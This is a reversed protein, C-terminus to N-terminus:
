DANEICYSGFGELMIVFVQCSLMKGVHLNFQVAVRKGRSSTESLLKLFALPWNQEGASEALISGIVLSWFLVHSGIKRMAPAKTTQPVRSPM